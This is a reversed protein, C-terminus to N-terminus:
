VPDKYLWEHDHYKTLAVSLGCHPLSIFGVALSQTRTHVQTEAPSYKGNVKRQPETHHLHHQTYIDEAAEHLYAGDNSSVSAQRDRQNARQREWEARFRPAARETLPCM